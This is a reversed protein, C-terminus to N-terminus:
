RFILNRQVAFFFGCLYLIESSFPNLTNSLTTKYVLLPKLSFSVPSGWHWDTATEMEKNPQFKLSVGPEFERAM